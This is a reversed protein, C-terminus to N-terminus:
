HYLIVVSFAVMLVTIIFIIYCYPSICICFLLYLSTFIM